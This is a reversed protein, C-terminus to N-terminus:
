GEWGEWGGQGFTAYRSVKIPKPTLDKTFRQPKDESDDRNKSRLRYSREAPPNRSAKIDWFLFGGM